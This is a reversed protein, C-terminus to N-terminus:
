PLYESGREWQASLLVLAREPPTETPYNLKRHLGEPVVAQCGCPGPEIGLDRFCKFCARRARREASVQCVFTVARCIAATGRPARGTGQLSM